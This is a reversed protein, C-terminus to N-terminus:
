SYIKIGLPEPESTRCFDPNPNPRVRVGTEHPEESGVVLRTYSSRGELSHESPNEYCQAAIPQAYATYVYTWDLLLATLLFFCHVYSSPDNKKHASPQLIFM